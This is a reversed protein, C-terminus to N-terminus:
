TLALRKGNESSPFAKRQNWVKGASDFCSQFHQHPDKHLFKIRRGPSLTQAVLNIRKNM